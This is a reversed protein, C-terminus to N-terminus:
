GYLAKVLDKDLIERLKFLENISFQEGISILHTNNLEGDVSYYINAMNLMGSKEIKEAKFNKNNILSSISSLRRYIQHKDVKGDFTTKSKAKRILYDNMYLTSKDRKGVADGNKNFYIEQDFAERILSICRESVKVIRKGRKDDYVTINKNEFNVDERKINRIESHEFGNIGEFILRIIVADQANVLKNEILEIEKDTWYKKVVNNVFQYFFENNLDIKFGKIWKIYSTIIRGYSQASTKTIPNIMRMLTSIDDLSFSSLDKNLKCELESSKEFFWKYTTKTSGEYNSLFGNKKESNYM